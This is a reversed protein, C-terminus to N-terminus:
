RAPALVDHAGLEASSKRSDPRSAEVPGLRAQRPVLSSSEGHSSNPSNAPNDALGLIFGDRAELEDARTRRLPPRALVRVSVQLRPVRQM